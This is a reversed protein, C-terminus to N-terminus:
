ENRHQPRLLDNVIKVPAFTSVPVEVFVTNWRSMAGNWLGPLELARLPRGQLSKSSIFGTQPDVYRKLDFKRGRYDRVGCVLDVPNFHTATRMAEKRDPAIQSSEAIQLSEGGDSEAVWFPGGGPEGENRVMGCVRLPRNLLTHLAAARQQPALTRFAEPLRRCLKESVFGAIEDLRDTRGGDLERLYEFCSRQLSLMAGALIEKYRVTDAKLRDPLVNDVTKIFVIDADIADLNELLAGHGAPRFVLRGEDDRFPRNDPGAAITDTSPNQYSFGIEYRVGYREGYRGAVREVIREFAARHEPSVTLHIRATRGEGTAYLAGEALHEELATRAGDTYRHFLVLAKPSHGYDLGEGVLASVLTRPTREGGTAALLDDAFAFDDIRDVVEQANRNARGEALYEFLDKFMRTAAGSAPVFKVIRKRERKGRYSERWRAAEEESPRVIGDGVTAVRRIGLYPFGNEFCAIQAGVREPTQGHAKIQELDQESFM